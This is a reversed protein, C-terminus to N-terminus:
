DMKSTLAGEKVWPSLSLDERGSSVQLKAGLVHGACHPWSCWELCWSKVWQM